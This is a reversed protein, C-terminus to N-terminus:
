MEYAFHKIYKYLTHPYEHLGYEVKTCDSVKIIKSWLFVPIALEFGIQPM